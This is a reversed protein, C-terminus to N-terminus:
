AVDGVLEFMRHDSQVPVAALATESAQAPLFRAAAAAGLLAGAVAILTAHDAGNIFAHRAASVLKLGAAGRAHQGVTVAAGVSSKAQAALSAPLHVAASGIRSTFISSPATWWSSWCPFACCAL